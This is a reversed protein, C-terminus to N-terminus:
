GTNRLGQAIGNLTTGLTRPDSPHSTGSRKRSLLAVQLLSLPDVYPNRVDITARLAPQDELLRDRQRIELISSVTRWFEAELRQFLARDAQLRDAYLAAIELDAKACVMEVKSLFDDFFPWQRAMTQLLELGGEDDRIQRLASGVGLWGPLMLRMQTWGFVWPIARIGSMKGVAKKRYAPRSGFHVQTLEEVPTASLFTEFLTPDDHVLSRFVTRSTDAMRDMAERWAEPVPEPPDRLASWLVGSFMVELSREAIPPLSFKQSIVEGQETIKIGHRCAGPPLAVLGRFVPSGGGRGVTGGRGHFLTVTGEAVELLREQAKYLLWASAFVGADKASDSYGLMIEQHGGRAQLQRRYAPHMQLQRLVEPGNELDAGTEFLPVVDLRSWPEQRSLDVLGEERALLLVHLLDQASHTMSVIYTNAAREGYRDQIRRMARLTALAQDVEEDLSRRGVLPRSGLLEASVAEARSLDVQAAEGIRRVVATHVDSEQRVDLRVGHLGSVQVQHELPRILDREAEVAGAHRLSRGLLALDALLPASPDDGSKARYARPSDPEELWSQLRAKMFSLKLRLPEQADRRANRRWVDALEVRDRDLSAGLEPPFRALEASAGLKELLDDLREQYLGVVARASAEAARETVEPTVFPNGDRDGGVWSGIELQVPEELPEGFTAEFAAAAATAAESGAPLLRESLYWVVGAVEDMVSPRDRRVESTLWLLEVEGELKREVSTRDLPGSARERKLLLDAVRTQLLLVTRRTAETPHATLVPRPRIRAIRARVEQATRGMRRLEEFTWAFSAPQPGVPDSYSARRRVRHVQEATNILVFFLSFARAVTESTQPSYTQVEDLLAELSRAGPEGRRRDRCALRLREVAEFCERGELREIVRGLTAALHRVDDHLPRDQPRPSTAM